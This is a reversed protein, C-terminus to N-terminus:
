DQESSGQGPLNRKGGQGRKRHTREERRGQKRGTQKRKMEQQRERLRAETGSARKREGRRLATPRREKKYHIQVHLIMCKHQMKCRQKEVRCECEHEHVREGVWPKREEGPKVPGCACM